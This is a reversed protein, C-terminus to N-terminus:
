CRSRLLKLRSHLMSHETEHMLHETELVSHETEHMRQVQMWDPSCDCQSQVAHDQCLASALALQASWLQPDHSVLAWAAGQDSVACPPWVAPIACKHTRHLDRTLSVHLLPYLFPKHPNQAPQIQSVSNNSTLSVCLLPCVFVQQDQANRVRSISGALGNDESGIVSMWMGVVVAFM